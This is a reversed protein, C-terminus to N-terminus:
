YFSHLSFQEKHAYNQIRSVLNPLFVKLNVEEQIFYFLLM